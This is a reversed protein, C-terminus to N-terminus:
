ASAENPVLHQTGQFDAPPPGAQLGTLCDRWSYGERDALDRAAHVESPCHFSMLFHPRHGAVTQRMGRLAEEGHGEVDIKVLKPARIDGREVLDDLAVTEIAHRTSGVGKEGAYRLHSTTQGLGGYVLLEGTGSSASAAARYLKVWSLANMRVHLQCRKFSVPDPEFGVVQGAPGVAQALGVTYIGFHTGLDWCCAGALSGLRTLAAGVDPEFTGRWYASHPFLTWRAGQAVGARVRVPLRALPTRGVAAVVKRMVFDFM